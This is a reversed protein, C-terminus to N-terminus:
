QRFVRIDEIRNGPSGSMRIFVKSWAAADGTEGIPATEVTQGVDFYLQTFESENKTLNKLFVRAQGNTLDWESRVVVRDTGTLAPKGDAGFAFSQEGGYTAGRVHVGKTSLGFYATPQRQAPLGIGFFLGFNGGKPDARATMELVITDDPDLGFNETPKEAQHDAGTQLPALAWGGESELDVVVPPVHLRTGKWGNQDALFGEIYGSQFDERYIVNEVALCSASIAAFISLGVLFKEILRSPAPSM